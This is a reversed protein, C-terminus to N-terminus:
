VSPEAAHHYARYVPQDWEARGAATLDFYIGFPIGAPESGAPISARRLYDGYRYTKHFEAGLDGIIDEPCTPTIAREAFHQGFAPIPAQSVMVFGRQVLAFMTHLFEDVSLAFGDERLSRVVEEVPEIDDALANLACWEARTLEHSSV